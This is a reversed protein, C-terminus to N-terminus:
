VPVYALINAPTCSDYYVIYRGGVAFDDAHSKGGQYRTQIFSPNEEDTRFSLCISNKLASVRVQTCILVSERLEARRYDREISFGSYALWLSFLGIALCKPNHTSIAFVIGSILFLLAACYRKIRLNQLPTPLADSREPCSVDTDNNPTSGNM